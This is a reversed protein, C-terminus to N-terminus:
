VLGFTSRIGLIPLLTAVLLFGSTLGIRNDCIPDDNNSTVAVGYVFTSFIIWFWAFYMIISHYDGFVPAKEKSM